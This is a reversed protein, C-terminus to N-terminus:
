AAAALKRRLRLVESWVFWRELRRGRAVQEFLAGMARTSVPSEWQLAFEPPHHKWHLGQGFARLRADEDGPARRDTTVVRVDNPPLVPFCCAPREGTGGSRVAPCSEPPTGFRQRALTALDARLSGLDGGIASPQLNGGNQNALQQLARIRERITNATALDTSAFIRVTDTGRPPSYDWYFGARNGSQLSDPILVQQGARVLGDPYFDRQQLDHPFLVNM